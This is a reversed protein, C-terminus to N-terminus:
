QNPWLVCGMSVTLMIEMESGVCWHEMRKSGDFHGDHAWVIEMYVCFRPEVWIQQLELKIAHAPNTVPDARLAENRPM